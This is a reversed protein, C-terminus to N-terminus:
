KPELQLLPQTEYFFKSESDSNEFNQVTPTKKVAPPILKLMEKQNDALFKTLDPMIKRRLSTKIEDLNEPQIRPSKSSGAVLHEVLTNESTSAEFEGSDVEAVAKRKQSRTTMKSHFCQCHDNSITFDDFVNKTELVSILLECFLM